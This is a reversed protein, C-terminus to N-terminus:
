PHPGISVVTIEGADPGFFWWVRWASPTGQEVYSEWVKEGYFSDFSEYRHSALSPHRHNQELLGLCEAIKKARKPDQVGEIIQDVTQTTQVQHAM